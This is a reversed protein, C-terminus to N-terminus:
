NTRVHYERQKVDILTLCDDKLWGEDLNLINVKSWGTIHDTIKVKEGPYLMRQHPSQMSPGQKLECTKFIIGENLRFIEHYSFIGAMIFLIGACIFIGIRHSPLFSPIKIKNLSSLWMIVAGVLFLLGVMVWVGPRCIGILAKYWDLLFFTNVPTVGNEIRNREEKIANRIESSAPRYRLAKEYNLIAEPIRGLMSEANGMNILLDPDTNGSKYLDTWADLAEQYEGSDYAESAQANMEQFSSQANASDVFIFSILIIQYIFYKFKM